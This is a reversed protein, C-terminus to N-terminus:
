VVYNLKELLLNLDDWVIWYANLHRGGWKLYFQQYPNTPEIGVCLSRAQQQQLWAALYKLLDAGIGQRQYAKLIYFNQIEADKDYRTTLHGAIFGVIKNDIM